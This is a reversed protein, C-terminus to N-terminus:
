FNAVDDTELGRYPVPNTIGNRGMSFIQFTVPNYYTEEPFFPDDTPRETGGFSDYDQSRVYYYPQYWPDLIQVSARPTSFEVPNGDLDGLQRQDVDLYPGVWRYDLPNYANGSLSHLLAVQLYGCGTAPSSPNPPSPALNTGSGSPPLQGVDIEYSTVAMEIQHVTDRCAAYRAREVQGTYSTIAITSLIGIIMIVVLLEILTVGQKLKNSKM